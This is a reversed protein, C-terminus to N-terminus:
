HLHLLRIVRVLTADSDAQKKNDNEFSSVASEFDSDSVTSTTEHDGTSDSVLSSALVPWIVARLDDEVLGPLYVYM